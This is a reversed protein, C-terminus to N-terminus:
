ETLCGKNNRDKKGVNEEDSIYKWRKHRQLLVNKVNDTDCLRERKGKSKWGREREREREM